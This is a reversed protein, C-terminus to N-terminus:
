RRRAHLQFSSPLYDNTPTPDFLDGGIDTALNPGMDVNAVQTHEYDTDIHDVTM